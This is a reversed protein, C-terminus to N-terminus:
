NIGAINVCSYNDATGDSVYESAADVALASKNTKGTYITKLLIHNTDTIVYGDIMETKGNFHRFKYLIVPKTETMSIVMDRVIKHLNSFGNLDFNRAEGPKMQYSGNMIENYPRIYSSRQTDGLVNGPSLCTTQRDFAKFGSEMKMKNGHIWEIKKM